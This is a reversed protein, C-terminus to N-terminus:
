PKASIPESELIRPDESITTELKEVQRLLPRTLQFRVYLLVVSTGLCAFSVGALGFFPAMLATFITALALGALTAWTMPWDRNAAYLVLSYNESLMRLVIAPMILWFVWIKPTLQTRHLNALLSPMAAFLCISISVSWWWTDWQLRGAARRFEKAEGRAAAGTLIPFYPATIGHNILSYVANAISWFFTYIGTAELGLFQAVIFRDVFQYGGYAIDQLYFRSAKPLHERLWTTRLIKLYRWRGNTALYGILILYPAVLGAFWFFLLSQISRLNPFMFAACMFLAPWAGGRLFLLTAALTARRRSILQNHINQSLHEFSVILGFLLALLWPLFDSAANIWLAVPLVLCYTLATFAFQTSIEPLADAFDLDVLRRALPGNLGLGLLMPALAVAGLILGYIGLDHLGMMQAIFITLAFRVVLTVARM